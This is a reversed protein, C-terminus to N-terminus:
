LPPPGDAVGHAQSDRLVDGGRQRPVPRPFGRGLRECPRACRPQRRPTPGTGRVATRRGGEAHHPHAAAATGPDPEQLSGPVGAGLRGRGRRPSAGPPTAGMASSPGGGPATTTTGGVGPVADELGPQLLHALRVDLLGSPQGKAAKQAYNARNDEARAEAASALGQADKHAIAAELQLVSEMASRALKDVQGGRSRALAKTTLEQAATRQASLAAMAEAGLYFIEDEMINPNTFQERKMGELVKRFGEQRCLIALSLYRMYLVADLKIGFEVAKEACHCADTLFQRVQALPAEFAYTLCALDAAQNGRLKFFMTRRERTAAEIDQAGKQYFDLLNQLTGQLDSEKPKHPYAKM